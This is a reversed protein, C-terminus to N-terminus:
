DMEWTLAGLKRSIAVEVDTVVEVDAGNYESGVLKNFGRKDLSVKLLDPRHAECWALATSEDYHTKTVHKITIYGGMDRNGTEAYEALVLAKIQNRLSDHAVELTKIETQAEAITQKLAEIRAADETERIALAQLLKNIMTLPSAKTSM